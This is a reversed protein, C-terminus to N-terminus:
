GCSPLISNWSSPTAPCCTPWNSNWKRAAARSCCGFVRCRRVPSVIMSTSWILDPAPGSSTASIATATCAYGHRRTPPASPPRSPRSFINRSPSSLSACNRRYSPPSGCIAFPVIASNRSAWARAAPPPTSGDPPALPAVAPIEHEALQQAFAHEELIAAEALRCPRYFKAVGPPGDETDVRYVRNEYSNLALLGGPCRVGAM